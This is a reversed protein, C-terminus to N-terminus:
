GLQRVFRAWREIVPRVILSWEQGGDKGQLRAFTFIETHISRGPHTCSLPLPDSIVYPNVTQAHCVHRLAAGPPTRVRRFTQLGLTCLSSSYIVFASPPHPSPQRTPRFLVMPIFASSSTLIFYVMAAHYTQCSFSFTHTAGLRRLVLKKALLKVKQHPPCFFPFRGCRTYRIANAVPVLAPCRPSSPGAYKCHTRRPLPGM